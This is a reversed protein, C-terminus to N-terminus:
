QSWTPTGVIIITDPDVERIVSIINDAYSKVTPWNVGNPENCIEYLVHTKSRYKLATERWYAAADAQSVGTGTLWHNPDGPTLVHWDIMIYVGFEEGWNVIEDVLQAVSKDSAYGGEGIYMAARFVTIGWSSVLHELMGKEYCDPFWHLGHTSMGKLQVADGRLNVLQAGSLKLKGHEYAFGRRDV